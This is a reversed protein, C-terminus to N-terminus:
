SFLPTDAGTVQKTVNCSACILPDGTFHLLPAFASMLGLASHVNM